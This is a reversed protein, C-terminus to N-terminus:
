CDVSFDDDDFVASASPAHYVQERVCVCVCARARVCVFAHFTCPLGGTRACEGGTSSVGGGEEGGGKSAGHATLLFSLLSLIFLVIDAARDRRSLGREQSGAM